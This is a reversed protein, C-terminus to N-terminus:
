FLLTWVEELREFLPHVTEEKQQIVSSPSILRSSPSDTKHLSHAKSRLELGM